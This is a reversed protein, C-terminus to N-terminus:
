LNIQSIGHLYLDNILTFLQKASIDKNRKLWFQFLSLSTNIHFEVLYDDLETNTHDKNPFKIESKLRELFDFSGYKGLLAKLYTEKETFFELLYNEFHHNDTEKPILIIKQSIYKIVDDQIYELLEYIDSFYQYFTSRNYGALHCIEKVTIKQLPKRSYLECFVNIIKAKTQNTKSLKQTM